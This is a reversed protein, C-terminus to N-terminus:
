NRRRLKLSPTRQRAGPLRVRRVLPKEPSDSSDTKPNTPQLSVVEGGVDTLEIPDESSAENGSSGSRGTEATSVHDNMDPAAESEREAKIKDLLAYVQLYLLTLRFQHGYVPSM